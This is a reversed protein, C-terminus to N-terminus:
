HRIEIRNGDPDKIFYARHDGRKVEIVKIKKKKLKRCYKERDGVRYGWHNLGTIDSTKKKFRKSTPEFIEVIVGPRKEKKVSSPVLKIFNCESSIGFILKILSKPLVEKKRQEKFDLKKKYFSVLRKANSTFIGIHDCTPEIKM